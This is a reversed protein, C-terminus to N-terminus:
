ACCSRALASWRAARTASRPYIAPSRATFAALTTITRSSRSSGPRIWRMRSSHGIWTSVGSRRLPGSSSRIRFRHTRFRSSRSSRSSGCIPWGDTFASCRTTILAWINLYHSELLRMTTCGAFRSAMSRHTNSAPGSWGALACTWSWRLRQRSRWEYRFAERPPGAGLYPYTAMRGGIIGGVVAGIATAAVRKNGKGFQNGIVGGAIAGVAQGVVRDGVHYQVAPQEYYRPAPEYVVPVERYVVRERYVVQPQQYVVQQPQYIVPPPAYAARRQAYYHQVVVHRGHKVHRQKCHGHKGYRHEGYRHERYDDDDGGRDAFANTSFVTAAVVAPLWLWKM